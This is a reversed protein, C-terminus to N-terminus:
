SWANVLFETLGRSHSIYKEVADMTDAANTGALVARPRPASLYLGSGKGLSFPNIGKEAADELWEKSVNNAAAGGV